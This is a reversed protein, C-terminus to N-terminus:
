GYTWFQPQFDFSSISAQCFKGVLSPVSASVVEIRAGGESITLPATVFPNEATSAWQTRITGSIFRIVPIEGIPTPLTGVVDTQAFHSQAVTSSPNTVISGTKERISGLLYSYGIRGWISVFGGVGTGEAYFWSYSQVGALYNQNRRATAPEPTYGPLSASTVVGAGSLGDILDTRSGLSYLGDSFRFMNNFQVHINNGVRNASNNQNFVFQTNVESTPIATARRTLPTHPSVVVQGGGSYTDMVESGSATGFYTASLEPVRIQRLNWYFFVATAKDLKNYDAYDRLSFSSPAVAAFGRDNSTALAFPETQM